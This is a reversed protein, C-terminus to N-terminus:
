SKHRESRFIWPSNVTNVPGMYYNIGGFTCLLVQDGKIPTDTFGRFLPYYKKRSMQKLKIGKSSVVHSKGIIANIDRDNKYSPSDSNLIVDMVIGPVFQLWVPVPKSKGFLGSQSQKSPMVTMTSSM